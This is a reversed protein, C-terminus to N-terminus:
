RIAKLIEDGIAKAMLPPVANGVLTYQPIDKKRLDGGTTRKGQFVFSDDFSQFRAMERVTMARCASYHIFDDPMTVVTPAQGEPKLVTYNRKNSMVNKEKLEKKCAENYEGHKVIIGLREKVEENQQSTQHNYLGLGEIINGKELDEQSKVYFPLREMSFRHNLRGMKSWDSYHTSCNSKGITSDSKRKKLLSEYEEPIAVDEYDTKEEGNGIFDLDSIAEFVTVKDKMQITAPIDEILKQDKRCGIFLVRERNQPVGFDSANVVIPAKIQYLRIERTLRDLEDEISDEAYEKISTFCEDLTLQFLGIMDQLESVDEQYDEFDEIRGFASKINKIIADDDIFELFKDIAKAFYDNDIYAETKEQIIANIISEREKSRKLLNLGHRITNVNKDSKSKQFSIQKTLSKYQTELLQIFENRCRDEDEDNALELKIKAIFCSRIFESKMPTTKLFDLLKPIEKDDIISRIENMVAEKFKGKDKTLIGSVNEMVFYKPRLKRIVKLYHLFLNDRKDYKRRRGSLSFSQCSPGGTVVDIEQGGIKTLLHSLFSDSMIDETVFETDLGLQYNYRVRHTLECNSNIDSALVFKYYKNESYSQLFGESIGGAGAFLDVFTIPTKGKLFEKKEAM